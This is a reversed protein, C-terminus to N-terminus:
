WCQEHCVYTSELVTAAKSLHEECRDSGEGSNGKIDVNRGLELTVENKPM